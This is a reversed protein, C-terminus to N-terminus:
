VVVRRRGAHTNYTCDVVIPCDDLWDLDAGPHRVALIALDYAAGDPEGVAILGLDEGADVTPILDDHYSVEAGHARLLRIIDVAPSERVDRVGPKYAAGVVIVRAGEISRGHDALEAVARGVVQAPRGAIADMATQVLATPVGTGRLPHILYHPDCPICHGGVGAGPFFPMYGYPKTAAARTVEMTDLGLHRAMGALENALAINVARFTNEYLKTLEAAECSSVIALSPAIEGIVRAAAEACAPTAGGIVRPTTDADHGLSGPDIREPAFAVHIDVGAVLGRAALPAVLLDRTTGAYTTSTLIITQGPRAHRVVSACAARLATLDPRRQEDVPTPVCIIVADATAIAAPSRTLKFSRSGLALRLRRADRAVLDATGDQIEQLRRGSVDVGVVDFGAVLLSLSTPLGVYGMGVVVTTTATPPAAAPLTPRAAEPLSSM